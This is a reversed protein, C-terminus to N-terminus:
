PTHRDPSHRPDLRVGNQSQLLHALDRAFSAEGGEGRSVGGLMWSERPVGTAGIYSASCADQLVENPASVTRPTREPVTREWTSIRYSSFARWFAFPILSWLPPSM